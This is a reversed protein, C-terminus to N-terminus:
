TGSGLVTLIKEILGLKAFTGTSGIVGLAVTSRVLIKKSIELSDLRSKIKEHQENDDKQHIQMGTTLAEEIRTTREDISRVYQLLINNDSM